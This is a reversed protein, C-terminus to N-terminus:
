AAKRRRRAGFAGAGVLAAGLLGLTAPEPITQVANGTAFNTAALVWLSCDEDAVGLGACGTSTSTNDGGNGGFTVDVAQEIKYTANPIGFLTALIDITALESGGENQFIGPLAEDWSLAWEITSSSGDELIGTNAGDASTLGMNAILIEDGGGFNLGGDPNFFMSLSLANYDISYEDNSDDGDRTTVGGQETASSVEGSGFFTLFIHSGLGGATDGYNDRDLAGTNCTNSGFVADCTQELRFTFSEAFDDGTDIVSGDAGGSKDIAVFWGLGSVPLLPNAPPVSNNLSSWLWVVVKNFVELDTTAGFDSLQGGVGAPAADGDAFGPAFLVPDQARADTVVGAALVGAAAGALLLSQFKTM